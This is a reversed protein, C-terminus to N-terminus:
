ANLKRRIIRACSARQTFSVAVAERPPRRTPAQPRVIRVPKFTFTDEVPSCDFMGAEIEDLRVLMQLEYYWPEVTCNCYGSIEEARRIIPRLVRAFIRAVDEDGGFQQWQAETMPWRALYRRTETAGFAAGWTKVKSAKTKRRPATKM